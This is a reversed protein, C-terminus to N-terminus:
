PIQWWSEHVDRLDVKVPDVIYPTVDAELDGEKRTSGRGLYWLFRNGSEHLYEYKFDEWRPERQLLTVLSASGPWLGHIRAGPKGGNYWSSCGESLVTRAFFADSYRVFDEAAEVLPELSRIGERSAKRLIKAFYVVQNEVNHPVTGSRGSGNPGHLFLLNPFGPTASGLYTYPFGHKGGPRWADALTEGHAIIPFPPAMDGNAGTACYIADVERHVGDVTEIGTETFRRIPTLDPRTKELRSNMLNTMRERAQDNKESGKLWDEFGRFYQSEKEKRFAIYTEPDAFSDRLEQSIPIPSTSTEHGAFSAAVWTKNRAYHDLRGVRKQINAVVQLGSAGNGIVAVRKGTIDYNPDWNSTHRLLGKFDSLGPYDPLRWENFRGIAHIVFHFGETRDAGTTLDKVTLNWLGQSADWEQRNVQHSLQLYQYVNYKQGTTSQYVHAPVDCRVGPYINVESNKEFITLKIGPVKPPLLIGALVGSLGAGVVAVRLERPEDAYRDVLELLPGDYVSEVKAAPLPPTPRIAPVSTTSDLPLLPQSNSFSEIPAPAAIGQLALEPLSSAGLGQSIQAAVPVPVPDLTQVHGM